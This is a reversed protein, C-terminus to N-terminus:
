AGDEPEDKPPIEAAPTPAVPAAPVVPTPWNWGIAGRGLAEALLEADEALLTATRDADVEPPDYLEIRDIFRELARDEGRLAKERQKLVVAEKTIYRTKKLTKPDTATVPMSAAAKYITKLSKAGKTRGPRRRGDGSDFRTAASGEAHGRGDPAGDKRYKPEKAM